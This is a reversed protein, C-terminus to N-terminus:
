INKTSLIKIQVRSHANCISVSTFTNEQFQRIMNTSYALLVPSIMTEMSMETIKFNIEISLDCPFSMLVM